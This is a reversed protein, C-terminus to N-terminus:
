GLVMRFHFPNTGFGRPKPVVTGRPLEADTRDRFGQTESRFRGFILCIQGSVGPNRPNETRPRARRVKKSAVFDRFGLTEHEFGRGPTWLDVSYGNRVSEDGSTFAPVVVGGIDM